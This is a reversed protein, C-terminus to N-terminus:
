QELAPSLLKMLPDCAHDDLLERALGLRVGFHDREVVRPGAVDIRGDAPPLLGALVGEAAGRVGLRDRM